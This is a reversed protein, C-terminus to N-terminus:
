GQLPEHADATTWRPYSLSQLTAPDEGDIIRLVASALDRGALSIDESAVELNPRIWQLIESSQKAAIDVDRGVVLGAAEIGAIIGITGGGSGSVIGDPRDPGTMCKHTHAKLMSLPTDVDVGGYEVEMAGAQALGRAFGAMTHHYYTLWPPPPLLALRTRGKAALRLVAEVAFAENDFDHFSHALGTETRGHTSFPVGREVLYRVRPDNPETRSFIIGDASATEVLYRVPDLADGTRSYPTVVLHYPTGSLVDSIGRVMHSTQGMVEEETSLVLAIVNTKGTRLRVGARDPVYGIEDAIQRVRQRTKAGIDPANKLARSVTPVALGSLRAITKLTPRADRSGSGARKADKDRVPLAM